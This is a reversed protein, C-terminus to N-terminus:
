FIVERLWEVVGLGIYSPLVLNAWFELSFAEEEWRKIGGFYKRDWFNLLVQVNLISCQVNFM